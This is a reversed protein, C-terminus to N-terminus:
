KFEIKEKQLNKEIECYEDSSIKGILTKDSMFVMQPRGNVPDYSQIYIEDGKLFLRNLIIIDNGVDYKSVNM